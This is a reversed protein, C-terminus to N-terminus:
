ARLEAGLQQELQRVIRQRFGAVEADTLTRDDAQYVVSYALSKKGPALQEGRYLDFLSVQRLMPGGAERIVRQVSEAPVEEDVVVALDELVAPYAPIPVIAFRDELLDSLVALDLEAALVAGEGLEYDDRMLPHLEGVTGLLREGSVVQACKEPHFPAQSSPIYRVDDVHLGTLLQDVIGKLDYFDM